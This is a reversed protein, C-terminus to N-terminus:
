TYVRFRLKVNTVAIGANAGTSKNFGAFTTTNCRATINTADVGVFIATDAVGTLGDVWRTIEDGVSWGSVASTFVLSTVVISPVAGVSHAQTYTTGNALSATDFTSHSITIPQYTADGRLFKAADGTTPAPVLGKTGGSGSDGVMVDLIATAQTATLDEPDGTGATTRGKITQTAMNAAKANSVADNAITGAVSGPGSATVDGTLATIYNGTAQKTALGTDVYATTAIKTSNDAQSQTPATPSGTLAPSALPAKAALDSVLNTVQSEAIQISVNSAATARGKGDLTVSAVQTASGFSGTNSNVTALTSAVSGPGSAAVDGTLATIYNGSAQKSNLQTQVNSSLGSLKAADTSALDTGDAFRLINKLIKVATGSFISAAM